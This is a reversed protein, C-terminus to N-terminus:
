TVTWIGLGELRELESALTVGRDLLQRVRAALHPSLDLAAQLDAESLELLAEPRKLSSDHVRTALDNWERVTLPKAGGGAPLGLHSTALLIAQADTSVPM